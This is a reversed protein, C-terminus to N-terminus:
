RRTRKPPPEWAACGSPSKSVPPLSTEGDDHARGLESPQERQHLPGSFAGPELVYEEAYVDADVLGYQPLESGMGGPQSALNSLHPTSYRQRLSASQSTQHLGQGIGAHGQQDWVPSAAEFIGYQGDSRANAARFIETTRSSTSIRLLKEPQVGEHPEGVSPAPLFWDRLPNVKSDDKALEESYGLPFALEALHSVALSHAKWSVELARKARNFYEAAADLESWASGLSAGTTSVEQQVALFASRLRLTDVPLPIHGESGEEPPEAACYAARKSICEAPSRSTAPAGSLLPSAFSVAVTGRPATTDVM